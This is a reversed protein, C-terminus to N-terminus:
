NKLSVNNEKSNQNRIIEYIVNPPIVSLITRTKNIDKNENIIMPFVEFIYSLVVIGIIGISTFTTINDTTKYYKDFNKFLIDIQTQYFPILVNVVIINLDRFRIDNFLYFPNLKKYLVEDTDNPISDNYYSTGYSYDYYIFNNNLAFVFLDYYDYTIELIGKLYYAYIPMLGYDVIDNGISVCTLNSLGSHKNFFSCLEATLNFTIISSANGPLGKESINNYIYIQHERAQVFNGKIFTLMTELDNGIKKTMLYYGSNKIQNRMYNINKLFYREQELTLVNILASNYFKIYSKSVYIILILIIITLIIHFSTIATFERKFAKNRFISEKKLHLVNTTKDDFNQNSSVNEKNTLLSEDEEDESTNCQLFDQKQTLNNKDIQIKAYKQCRFNMMRIIELDIKYFINLYKEKERITKIKGLVCIYSVSVECIFYIIFIVWLYLKKSKIISNIEDLYYQNLVAMGDSIRQFNASIFQSKSNIFHQEKDNSHIFSFSCYFYMQLSPNMLINEENSYLSYEETNWFVKLSFAYNNIIEEAKPSLSPKNYVFYSLKEQTSNYITILKNFIFNSYDNRNNIHKIEYKPNKILLYEVLYYCTLIVDETISCQIHVFYSLHYIRKISKLIQDYVMYPVFILILLSLFYFFSSIIISKNIFHPSILKKVVNSESFKQPYFLNINIKNKETILNYKNLPDLNNTDNKGFSLRKTQLQEGNMIEDVKSEFHHNKVEIFSHTNYDYISFKIKSHIQYYNFYDIKDQKFISNNAELNRNENENSSSINNNNEEDEEYEEVEEEKSEYSSSINSNEEEIVEKDLSIDDNYKKEFLKQISLYGEDKFDCKNKLFFSKGEIDFDIEEDVSPIFDTEIHFIENSKNTTHYISQRSANKSNELNKFNSSDLNLDIYDLQFWYGMIEDLIIIKQVLCEFRKNNKWLIPIEPKDLFKSQFVKIKANLPTINESENSLINLVEENFEPIFQTVELNGNSYSSEFGLLNLCNTTFNQIFLRSNVIVFCKNRLHETNKNPKTSLKLLMMAHNNEDFIIGLEVFAPVLFKANNRFFVFYEKLNNLTFDHTTLNKIKTTLMTEHKKRLFDPLIIHMNKGILDIETYGLLQCIELSVKKILGFSDGYGNVLIFQYDSKSTLYNIDFFSEKFKEDNDLDNIKINQNEKPDNLIEKVFNAYLTTIKKTNLGNSVLIKYKEKILKRKEDIKVGLNKLNNIDMSDNKNLLLGWFQSYLSAIKQILTLIEKTQYAFSIHTQEIGMEIGKEEINRKIRYIFFEESYNLNHIETAKLLTKYSKQYKHLKEMQFVAYNVLLIPSGKFISLSQKYIDDIHQYLLFDLEENNEILGKLHEIIKELNEVNKVTKIQSIASINYSYSILNMISKRDKNKLEIANIFLRINNYLEIDKSTDIISNNFNNNKVCFIVIVCLISSIIFIVILGEFSKNKILNGFFLFVCGWCYIVNLVFKAVIIPNTKYNQYKRELFFAYTCILSTTLFGFICYNLIDAVCYIELLIIMITRCVMMVCSGNIILYKSVSSSFKDTKHFSLSLFLYVLVTM